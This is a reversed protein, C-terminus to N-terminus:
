EVNLHTFLHPIPPFNFVTELNGDGVSATLVTRTALLRLNRWQKIWSPPKHCASLLILDSNRNPLISLKSAWNFTWIWWVTSSFYSFYHSSKVKPSLSKDLWHIETKQLVGATIIKQKRLTKKEWLFLEAAGTIHLGMETKQKEKRFLSEAFIQRLDNATSSKSWLKNVSALLSWIIWFQM